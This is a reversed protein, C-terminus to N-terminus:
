EKGQEEAPTIRATAETNLLAASDAPRTPRAIPDGEKWDRPMGCRFAWHGRGGCRTCRTPDRNADNTQTRGGRGRHSRSRYSNRALNAYNKGHPSSTSVTSLDMPEPDLHPSTNSSFPTATPNTSKSATTIRRITLQLASEEVCLMADALWIKERNAKRMITLTSLREQEHETM